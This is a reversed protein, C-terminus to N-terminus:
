DLISNDSDNKLNNDSIYSQLPKNLMNLLDPCMKILDQVSILEQKNKSEEINNMKNSVKSLFYNIVNEIKLDKIIKGTMSDTSDYEYVTNNKIVIGYTVGDVLNNSSFGYYLYKFEVVKCDEDLRIGIVIRGLNNPLVKIQPDQWGPICDKSEKIISIFEHARM